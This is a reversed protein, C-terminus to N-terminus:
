KAQVFYFDTAAPLSGYTFPQQRLRTAELVDDRVADFLRRVELGPAKLNSVLAHAFPSGAVADCEASQGDKASYVVLMGLGPEPPASLGRPGVGRTARPRLRTKAPCADLIVLRLWKAGSISAVLLDYPVMELPADDEDRLVADVPIFYNAEKIQIAYGAYYILGWDAHDAQTRFARLVKLMSERDLDTRLEVTQFGTQRLADAVAEADRRPYPLVPESRYGSNGIVLAVRREAPEPKAPVRPGGGSLPGPKAPGPLNGGGFLGPGPKAVAPALFYPDYLSISVEPVQRDGTAVKVDHGVDFFMQRVDLGPREINNLLAATFPSHSSDGDQATSLHQAAYALILGDASSMSALGRTVSGGRAAQRKLQREANNDRCADLIAIRVGKAQRLEGILTEVPVLEHPTQRLSSFKADVPVVYPVDDFTAGHGAFYVIAADAGEVRDAFQGIAENLGKLDLNEGYLVDFGLRALADRVGRADNVPNALPDAYRYAANGVVLAVRKDALALSNWAFLLAFVITFRTVLSLIMAFYGGVSFAQSMMRKCRIIILFYYCTKPYIVM